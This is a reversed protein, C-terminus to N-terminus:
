SDPFLVLGYPTKSRRYVKVKLDLKASPLTCVWPLTRLYILRPPATPLALHSAQLFVFIRFM